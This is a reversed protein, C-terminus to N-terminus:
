VGSTMLLVKLTKIGIKVDLVISRNKVYYLDYSLKTRTKEVEAQFKPPAKHYLQAWGSLGPKILHRINYYPIEDDYHKVLDPLEPRPGILSLDGKLVNWLQPLEDLRTKRLVRGVKTVYQDTEDISMSRFKYLRFVKNNRGVREQTYIVDGGDDLKIAILVFPYLVAVFILLCFSVVVDMVRKFLSYIIKPRLSINELFWSHQVLSIPVRDFIDEYVKHMDIFHIRSFILNYLSPLIPMVKENRLDVAVVSIEESYIRGVIEDQFDLSQMKEVDVSSAFKLDYRNNDNVEAMLEKVEGGSGILLAKQKKGFGMLEVGKLRWILMFVFSFFLFVFLNTKPAIGFYPVLYFLLAAFGIVVLQTNLLIGPLRNKLIMTHKEYLGSIFYVLVSFVFIISFSAVHSVLLTENIDSGYRVFLMLSLSLDFVLFDGIFLIVAERTRSISM